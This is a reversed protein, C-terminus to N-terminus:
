FLSEHARHNAPVGGGALSCGYGAYLVQVGTLRCAEDLVLCRRGQGPPLRMRRLYTPPTPLRHLHASLNAIDSCRSLVATVPIPVCIYSYTCRFAACRLQSNAFGAWTRWIALWVPTSKEAPHPKNSAPASLRLAMLFISSALPAATASISSAPARHRSAASHCLHQQWPSGDPLPFFLMRSPFAADSFFMCRDKWIFLIYHTLILKKVKAYPIFALLWLPCAALAALAASCGLLWLLRAAPAAPASLWGMRAAPASVVPPRTGSM